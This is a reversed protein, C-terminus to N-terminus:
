WVALWAMAGLYLILISVSEFGIRGWGYKQRGVLGMTVLEPLSTIVATFLGGMMAEGLGTQDALIDATRTMLTGFIGILLASVGFILLLLPTSVDALFTMETPYCIEPFSSVAKSALM